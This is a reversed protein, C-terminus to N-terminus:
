LISFKDQRDNLACILVRSEPRHTLVQDTAHALTETKGSGFPGYVVLPPTYQKRITMMHQVIELQTPNFYESRFNNLHFVLLKNFSVIELM